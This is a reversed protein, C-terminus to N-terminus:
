QVIFATFYVDEIGGFDEYKEVLSNMADRIRVALDKRFDPKALETETTVRMVDMVVSRLAFEHKKVNDIVRQDYRTVVAIQVSMVKRSGALNVLFEREMQFYTHDFRPSEPSKNNLKPSKGDAKTTGKDGAGKKADKADIADGAKKASPAGAGPTGPKLSEESLMEEASLAPRSFFGAAFLTGAVTGALLVLLLLVAVIIKILPSKPKVEDVEGIAAKIEAV